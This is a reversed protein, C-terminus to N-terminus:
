RKLTLDVPEPLTEFRSVRRERRVTTENQLRKKTLAIFDPNIEYGVFNRGTLSAVKATTGSGSFPDLVVDGKYSYLTILRYALEDPYPCPHPLLTEQTDTRAARARTMPQVPLINWINNAVEHFLLEDIPIRSAEKEAESRGKYIPTGGPKSLLLVYEFIRNPYFFGPYPNQILVGGRRDWGRWRRWIIEEKITWGQKELLVALHFPLAYYKGKVLTSAVNVAAIGGPKLVRLCEAFCRSLLALLENYTQPTDRNGDRLLAPGLKADKPDVWYPPSTVILDVSNDGLEVMNECSRNVLRIKDKNQSVTGGSM